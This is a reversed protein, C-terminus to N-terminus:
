NGEIKDIWEQYQDQYYKVGGSGSWYWQLSSKQWNAGALYKLSAEKEGAYTKSRAGDNALKIAAAAFGDKMYWPSPPNNGTISAIKSEYALWTTPMFQAVGMAGGCGYYPEKSVPMLDPSLGLRSTISLFAEKQAEATQPKGLKKYCEYLDIRWNGTGLNSGWRSEVKLLALLFAPRIDVKAAIEEALALAKEFSMSVGMGELQYLQNRIATIDKATKQIIKQFETEKGKTTKLLQKKKLEESELFRRQFESLSKLEAEESKKDELDSKEKEFSSKEEKLEDIIEQIELHLTELANIEGFFDSFQDNELIIELVTKEDYEYIKRLFDSLTSKRGSIKSEVNGILDNKENIDNTIQALLLEKEKIELKAKKIKSDFLYIENNLSKKQRAAEQYQSELDAMQKQLAELKGTLDKRLDEATASALEPSIGGSLYIILAFLPLFVFFGLVLKKLTKSRYYIQSLGRFTFFEM